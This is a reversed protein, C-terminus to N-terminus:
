GPCKFTVNGNQILPSGHIMNLWLYFNVNWHDALKLVYLFSALSTWGVYVPKTLSDPLLPKMGLSLILVFPVQKGIYHIASFNNLIHSLFASTLSSLERLWSNSLPSKYVWLPFGELSKHPHPSFTQRSSGGEGLHGQGLCFSLSRAWLHWPWSYWCCSDSGGHAGPTRAEAQLWLLDWCVTAPGGHQGWWCPLVSHDPAGPLSGGRCWGRGVYATGAGLGLGLESPLVQAEWSVLARARLYTHLPTQLHAWLASTQDCLLSM